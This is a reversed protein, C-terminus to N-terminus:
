RAKLKCEYKLWENFVKEPVRLMKPGLRYLQGRAEFMHMLGNAYAKSCNLRDIIQATGILNGIDKM